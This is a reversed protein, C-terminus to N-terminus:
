DLSLILDGSLTNHSFIPAKLLVRSCVVLSPCLISFRHLSAFALFLVQLVHHSLFTQLHFFLQDITPMVHTDLFHLISIHGTSQEMPFDSHGKFSYISPFSPPFNSSGIQLIFSCLPFPFSYMSMWKNFLYNNLMQTHPIWHQNFGSM